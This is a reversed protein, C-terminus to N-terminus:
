LVSGSFESLNKFVIAKNLGYRSAAVTEVICRTYYTQLKILSDDSTISSEKSKFICKLDLIISETKFRLNYEHVKRGRHSTRKM